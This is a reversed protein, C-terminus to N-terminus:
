EESNVVPEICVTNFDLFSNMELLKLKCEFDKIAEEMSDAPISVNGNFNLQYLFM